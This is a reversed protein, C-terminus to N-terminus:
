LSGAAAGPFSTLGLAEAMTRLLSQHQYFSASNFGPKCRSSIVITAVQGGGNALDTNVSEDFTIILVGDQRFAASALLPQINVSLWNDAAALKDADTCNPIGAPCDHANDQQNPIIFSYNSLQNNAQDTSLRSYPVLNNAQ